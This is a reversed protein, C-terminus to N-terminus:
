PGSRPYAFFYYYIGQVPKCDVIKPRYHSTKALHLYRFDSLNGGSCVIRAGKVTGNPDVDVRVVVGWCSALQMASKTRARGPSRIGNKPAPASSILATSTAMMSATPMPIAATPGGGHASTTVYAPAVGESSFSASHVPGPTGPPPASPEILTVGTTPCAHRTTATSPARQALLTSLM